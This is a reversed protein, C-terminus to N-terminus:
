DKKKDDDHAPRSTTEWSAPMDTLQAEICEVLLRITAGGAFVLDITEAADAGDANEHSHQITLLDLVVDRKKQDMALVQVGNVREFHLVTKRREFSKDAASNGAKEWVFRNLQLFFRKEAPKYNLDGVKLVADQVHAAIIGLDEGDFAILKLRNM